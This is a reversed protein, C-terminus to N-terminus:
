KSNTLITSSKPILPTFKTTKIMVESTSHYIVCSSERMVRSNRELINEAWNRIYKEIGNENEILSPKTSIIIEFLKDDKINRYNNRLQIWAKFNKTEKIRGRFNTHLRKALSNLLDILTYDGDDADPILIENVLSKEFMEEYAGKKFNIKKWRRIPEEPHKIVEIKKTSNGRGVLAEDENPTPISLQTGPPIETPSTPTKSFQLEPPPSCDLERLDYLFISVKYKKFDFFKDDENQLRSSMSKPRKVGLRKSM